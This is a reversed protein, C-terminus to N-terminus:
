VFSSALTNLFRRRVRNHEGTSFYVANTLLCLAVGSEPDAFAATGTFGTHSFGRDAWVDGGSHLGNPPTFWGCSHGGVKPDIRSTTSLRVSAPSLFPTEDPGRGGNLLMRLYNMVDDASGFLGAHGSVGALACGNADHVEGRLTRGERMPCFRTPAIRGEAEGSSVPQVGMFRRGGGDLAFYGATEMGLPRFVAERAFDDLRKGTIRRVIEGLLIYGLDSYAYREGPRAEPPASLVAEVVGAPSDAKEYFRDWWLLGSTHTLLHLLTVGKLHPLPREPFFSSLEDTLCVEGREVLHMVSSACALPKTLSALDYVTEPVVKHPLEPELRGYGERWVTEGKVEMAVACGPLIDAEIAGLLVAEARKLRGADIGLRELCASEGPKM